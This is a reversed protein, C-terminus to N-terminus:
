GGGPSGRKRDKDRLLYPNLRTSDCAQSGKTPMKPCLREKIFRLAADGDDDILVEQLELLDREDLTVTVSNM